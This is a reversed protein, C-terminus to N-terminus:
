AEDHRNAGRHAAARARRHTRSVRLHRPEGSPDAVPERVRWGAGRPEAVRRAGDPLRGYGAIWVVGHQQSRDDPAAFAAEDGVISRGASM